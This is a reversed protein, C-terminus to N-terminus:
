ALALAAAQQYLAAPYWDPPHPPWAAGQEQHVIAKALAILTAPAEVGIPHTPDVGLRTAVAAIYDPTANEMPPAWATIIADVSRRGRRGYTRLVRMLARVGYLPAEFAVFAADPQVAAQGLWVSPGHRINGPNHLRVGLPPRDM